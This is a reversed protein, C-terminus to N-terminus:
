FKHAVGAAVGTASERATVLKGSLRNLDIEGYLETRRSLLYTLAGMLVKRSGAVTPAGSRRYDYYVLNAMWLPSLMYAVGGFVSRNKTDFAAGEATNTEYGFGVRWHGAEWAGGATGYRSAQGSANVRRTYAGAASFPGAVYAAGAARESGNVSAGPLEGAAYEARVTLGDLVGTYQVANDNRTGATALNLTPIVGPFHSRLPDYVCVTRFAVTYLRGADLAGWPGSIGVSATRGFLRGDAPLAGTDGAFEGELLVNARMGGGLDESGRLGWRNAFSIGGDVRTVSDGAANANSQHRMGGDMTGYLTLGSQASAHTCCALLVAHAIIHNKM